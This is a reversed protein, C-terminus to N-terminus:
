MHVDAPTPGFKKLLVERGKIARQYIREANKVRTPLTSDTFGFGQKAPATSGSTSYLYLAGAVLVLLILANRPNRLASAM